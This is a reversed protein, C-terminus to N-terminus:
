DYYDDEDDSDDDDKEDNINSHVLEAEAEIIERDRSNRRSRSTISIIDPIIVCDNRRTVDLYSDRDWNSSNVGSNRRSNVGGVGSNRRSNVGGVGSNRRSNVGGIGINNVGGVGSNRRSNVGGIGSNRRSSVTSASITSGTVPREDYLNYDYNIPVVTSSGVLPDNFITINGKDDQHHLVDGNVNNMIIIGGSGDDTIPFVSGNVIVYDSGINMGEQQQRQEELDHRQEELDHRQEELDHRERRKKSSM